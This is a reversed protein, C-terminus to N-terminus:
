PTTPTATKEVSEREGEGNKQVCAAAACIIRMLHHTRLTICLYVIAGRADSRVASLVRVCVTRCLTRENTLNACM